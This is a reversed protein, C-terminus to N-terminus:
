SGREQGPADEETADDEEKLGIADIPINIVIHNKTVLFHDRKLTIGAAEKLFHGMAQAVYDARRVEDIPELPEHRGPMPKPKARDVLTYHLTERLSLGALMSQRADGRALFKRITSFKLPHGCAWDLCEGFSTVEGDEEQTLKCEDVARRFEEYFDLLELTDLEKGNRFYRTGFPQKWSAPDDEEICKREIDLLARLKDSIM